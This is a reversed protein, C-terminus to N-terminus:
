AIKKLSLFVPQTHCVIHTSYLKPYKNETCQVCNRLIIVMIDGAIYYAM